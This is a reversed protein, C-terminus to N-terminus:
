CSKLGLRDLEKKKELDFDFDDDFSAAVGWVSEGTLVVAAGGISAVDEFIEVALVDPTTVVEGERCDEVEDLDEVPAEELDDDNGDGVAEFIEVDVEDLVEDKGELGDEADADDKGDVEM